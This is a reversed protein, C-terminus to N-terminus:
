TTGKSDEYEHLEDEIYTLVPIKEEKNQGPLYEFMQQLKDAMFSFIQAVKVDMPCADECAGCGVCSLGMHSMRGLHFLMMDTPFVIGGKKDARVVYNDAESRTQDRSDFFCLRCYCIPCVRMCNHCNICDAFYKHLNDIGTAQTDLDAFAKNRNEQRRKAIAKLKELWGAAEETIEYGAATLCKEGESSKAVVMVKEDSMDALAIHIDTVIDQHDFHVCTTCSPRLDNSEFTKLVNQLATTCASQDALYDKTPFAGPCDYSLFTINTLNVQRLKTLETAARIECPRMVCLMRFTLDGKRTLDQLARAGQIPMIPAVPDCQKIMETDKMLLYAYSEGSPIRVPALVADFLGKELFSLILKRLTANIDKDLVTIYTGKM